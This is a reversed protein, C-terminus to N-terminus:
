HISRGGGLRYTVPEIGTTSVLSLGLVPAKKINLGYLQAPMPLHLKTERVVGHSMPCCPRLITPIQSM